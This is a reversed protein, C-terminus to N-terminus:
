IDLEPQFLSVILSSLIRTGDLSEMGSFESARPRLLKMFTTVLSIQFTSFTSGQGKESLWDRIPNSVLSFARKYSSVYLGQTNTKRRSFDKVMHGTVTQFSTLHSGIGQKLWPLIVLRFYKCGQSCDIFSCAEGEVHYLM